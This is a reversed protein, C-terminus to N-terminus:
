GTHRLRGLIHGGFLCLHAALAVLAVVALAIGLGDTTKSTGLLTVLGGLAAALGGLCPFLILAWKLMRTSPDSLRRWLLVAVLPSVVVCMTCAIVEATQM